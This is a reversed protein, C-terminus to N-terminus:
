GPITAAMDAPVTETSQQGSDVIGDVADTISPDAAPPVTTFSTSFRSVEGLTITLRCAQVSLGGNLEPSKGSDLEDIVWTRSGSPSRYMERGDFFTVETGLEQLLRLQDRIIQVHGPGPEWLGLLGTGAIPEADSLLITVMIQYPQRQRHNTIPAGRELAVNTRDFSRPARIDEIVDLHVATPGSGIRGASGTSAYALPM